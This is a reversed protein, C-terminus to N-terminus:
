EEEEPETDKEEKMDEPGRKGAGMLFEECMDRIQSVLEVADKDPAPALTRGHQGPEDDANVGMILTMMDEDFPKDDRAM